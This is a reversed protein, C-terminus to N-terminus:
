RMASSAPIATTSEAAQRYASIDKVTASRVRSIPIRVASPARGDLMTESIAFRANRWSATPTRIPPASLAAISTTM